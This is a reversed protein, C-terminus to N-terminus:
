PSDARSGAPDLVACFRDVLDEIETATKEYVRRSRGMPDDIDDSRDEGMLADLPRDEALRALWPRLDSPGAAADGTVDDDAAAEARHVLDRLTFARALADPVLVVAERVHQRTMGVVLDAAAVAEALLPTSRHASLDLGRGAMARVSGDSAPVGESVLGASHVTAEIGLRALRDRLLAEAM